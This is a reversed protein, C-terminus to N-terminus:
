REDPDRDSRLPETPTPPWIVVPRIPDPKRRTMVFVAALVLVLGIIGVTVGLDTDLLPPAGKKPTTLAGEPPDPLGMEPGPAIGAVTPASSLATKGTREDGSPTTYTLTIELPVAPNATVGTPDPEPLTLPLQVRFAMQADPALSALVNPLTNGAASPDMPSVATLRVSRAEGAGINKVNILAELGGSESRESKVLTATLSPASGGPLVLALAEQKAGINVMQSAVGTAGRAELVYQGPTLVHRLMFKGQANTVAGIGAMTISAGPVPTKTSDTLTGRLEVIRSRPGGKRVDVHVHCLDTNPGSQLLPEVWVGGGRLAPGALWLWDM